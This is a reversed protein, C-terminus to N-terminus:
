RLAPVPPGCKSQSAPGLDDSDGDERDADVDVDVGEFM